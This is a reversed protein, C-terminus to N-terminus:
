ALNRTVQGPSSKYYEHNGPVHLIQRYKKALPKLGDEM